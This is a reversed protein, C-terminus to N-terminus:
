KEPQRIFVKSADFIEKAKIFSEEFRPNEMTKRYVVETIGAQVITLACHSCPHIPIVYLTSGDTKIGLRGANCKANEEAHVTWLYKEPRNYREPINDNVGRPFGNYGTSLITKNKVIVAGVKTSPDKSRTSVLEAIDLFYDDWNRRDSFKMLYSLCSRVLGLDDKLSGLTRNCKHCLLGRIQGTLHNHDVVMRTKPDLQKCIACVNGQQELIQHYKEKSLNYLTKLRWEHRKERTKPQLHYKADKARKLAERHLCEPCRPISATKKKLSFPAGCRCTYNVKKNPSRM